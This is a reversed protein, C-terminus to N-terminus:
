VHKQGIHVGAKREWTKEFEEVDGLLWIRGCDLTRWHPCRTSAIESTRQKSVKWRKSLESLGLVQISDTVKKLDERTLAPAPTKKKTNSM